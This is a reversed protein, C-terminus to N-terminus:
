PGRPEILFAYDSEEVKRTFVGTETTALASSVTFQLHLDGATVLVGSAPPTAYLHSWGDRNREIWSKLQRYGQSLPDLIQERANAGLLFVHAAGGEPLTLSLEDSCGAVCVLTLCAFFRSMRLVPPNSRLSM